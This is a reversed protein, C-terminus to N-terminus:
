VLCIRSRPLYCLVDEFSSSAKLVDEFRRSSTKFVNKCSTKVFRRSFTKFIDQLRRSSTHVLRIYQDQLVDESSTHNIFIYEDEDLRREFVFVFSTKILVFTQQSTSEKLNYNGNHFHFNNILHFSGCTFPEISIDQVM